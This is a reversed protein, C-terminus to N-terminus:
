PSVHSFVVFIVLLIADEVTGVPHNSATPCEPFAGVFQDCFAFLYTCGNTLRDGVLRTWAFASLRRVFLGLEACLHTYAVAVGCAKRLAGDSRSSCTRM